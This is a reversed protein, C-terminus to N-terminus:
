LSGGIRGSYESRWAHISIDIGHWSVNNRFISIKQDREKKNLAVLLIAIERIIRYAKKFKKLETNTVNNIITRLNGGHALPQLVFM